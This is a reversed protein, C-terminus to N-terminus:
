GLECRARKTWPVNGVNRDEWIGGNKIQYVPVSTESYSIPSDPKESVDTDM